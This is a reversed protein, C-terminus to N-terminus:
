IRLAAYYAITVLALDLAAEYSRNRYTLEAVYPAPGAPDAGRGQAAEVHGLVVGAALVITLYLGVLAVSQGLGIRHVTLAVGGGAAALAYLSLVAGRESVGLAVLRHSTHDRGGILPSRGALRRTLTVFTTDLIPILLILIAVLAVSGVPRPGTPTALLSTAGLFSGLFFSGGDGMFISAPQFNYILFGLVAGTFAALSLALVTQ